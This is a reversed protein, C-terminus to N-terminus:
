VVAKCAADFATLYTPLVGYSSADSVTALSAGNKKILSVVGPMDAAPCDHVCHWFMGAYKPDLEWPMPVIAKYTALTGERTMWYDCLSALVAFPTKTGVDGTNICIKLGPKLARLKPLLSKYYASTDGLAGHGNGVTDVFIGSLLPYFGLQRTVAAIVEAEPRAGYKTHTYIFVPIDLADLAPVKSVYLSDPATADGNAPNITVFPPKIAITANWDADKRFYTVIMTLLKALVPTPVPQALKKLIEGIGLAVTDLRGLLSEGLQRIQATLVSFSADERLRADAQTDRIAKLEEHIDTAM